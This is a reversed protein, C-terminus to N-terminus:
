SVSGRGDDPGASCTYTTISSSPVSLTYGTSCDVQCTDQYSRGQCPSTNGPLHGAAHDPLGPWASMDPCPAKECAAGAQWSNLGYGVICVCASQGRKGETDSHAECLACASALASGESPNRTNIGCETCASAGNSTKYKGAECAVCQSGASYTGDAQCTETADSGTYGPVCTTKCSGQYSLSKGQCGNSHDPVPAEPCQVISCTLSGRYNGNSDCTIAASMPGATWGASCTATCAPAEDAYSYVGSCGSSHPPSPAPGCSVATCTLLGSYRGNAGCTFTHSGGAYGTGCKAMCSAGFTKSTGSCGDSHPPSPAPGCSVPECTSGTYGSVCACSHSGGTATCTGHSGCPDGDCGTAHDCATGSWGSACTCSHSGGAATCTGGNKCPTADCDGQARTEGVTLAAAAAVRLWWAICPAGGAFQPMSSQRSM